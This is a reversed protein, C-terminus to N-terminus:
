TGSRGVAASRVGCRELEYNRACRWYIVFREMANLRSLRRQRLPRKVDDSFCPSSAAGHRARAAFPVLRRRDARQKVRAALEPGLVIADVAVPPARQESFPDSLASAGPLEAAAAQRDVHGGRDPRLLEREERRDDDLAQRAVTQLHFFYPEADAVDAFREGLSRRQRLAFLRRLCLKRLREGLPERV